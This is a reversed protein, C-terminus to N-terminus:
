ITCQMEEVKCKSVCADYELTSYTVAALYASNAAITCPVASIGFSWISSAVCLTIAGAYAISAYKLQKHLDIACKLTCATPAQGLADWGNVGNNGVFAYLNLGGKEAIPDRSLWKGNIPNYYRLCLIAINFFDGIPTKKHLSKAPLFLSSSGKEALSEYYEIPLTECAM